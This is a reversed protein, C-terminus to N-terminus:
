WPDVPLVDVPYAIDAHLIATGDGKSGRIPLYLYDAASLPQIQLWERVLAARTDEGALLEELPIAVQKLTALGQPYPKWFEPRRDIDSMGYLVTEDILRNMADVDTPLEAYVLRPWTAPRGRLNPYQLNAIDVEHASVAEFRDVAFVAYVPRRAAIEYAGWVIIVLEIVALVLLDIVLHKKGPKFVVASLVPGAILAAIAVILFLKGIGFLQFFGTPYWLSRVAVFLLLLLCSTAGIRLSLLRARTM